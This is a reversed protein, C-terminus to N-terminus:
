FLEPTAALPATERGDITTLEGTAADFWVLFAGGGIGSSQPEVLGLVAQVTVMADAATGGERLVRAGAVAAHPNAVAVMWNKAFIPKGDAKAALSAEVESSIARFDAAFNVEAEPAVGDSAQQAKLSMAFFITAVMTVTFLTKM